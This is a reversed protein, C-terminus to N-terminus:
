LRHASLRGGRHGALLVAAGSPGRGLATIRPGDPLGGLLGAYRATAYDHVALHAGPTCTYVLGGALVASQVADGTPTSWRCVVGEGPVIEQLGGEGAVHVRDGEVWLREPYEGQLFRWRPEGEGAPLVEITGAPSILVLDGTSLYAGARAPGGDVDRCGLVRGDEIDLEVGGAGTAVLIRGPGAAVTYAAGPLPTRWVVQGARLRFAWGDSSIGAAGGPLAVVQRTAGLGTHHEALLYMGHRGIRAVSLGANTAVHVLTPDETGVALDQVTRSPLDLTMVGQARVPVVATPDVGSGNDVIATVAGSVADVWATCLWDGRVFRVAYVPRPGDEILQVAAV